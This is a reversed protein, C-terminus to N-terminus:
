LGATTRGCSLAPAVCGLRVGPRPPAGDGAPAATGDTGVLLAARDAVAITEPEITSTPGNAEM